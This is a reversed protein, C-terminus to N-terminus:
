SWLVFQILDLDLGLNLLWQDGPNTDKYNAGLQRLIAVRIRSGLTIKNRVSIGKLNGPLRIPNNHRFFGSYLDRIKRASEVSGLKANYLTPGTTRHRIPNVVYVIEFSFNVRNVQQVQKILDRIQRKVQLQWNSDSSASIRPLGSVNIWDEDSRNEVWDSFEADVAAKLSYDMQLTNHDHELYTLRDGHTRSLEQVAVLQVEAASQANALVEVTKDFLHIIYHLGAVPTLNVGDQSDQNTFSPLVRFNPPPSTSFIKSLQGAVEIMQQRYWYPRPRYLPPALLVQLQPREVCLRFLRERIECYVPDVTSQITNGEPAALLYETIAAFVFVNSEARIESFATSLNSMSACSIVQAKQMSERSAMNLTTMNQIVNRDGLISFVLLQSM